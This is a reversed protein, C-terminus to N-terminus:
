GGDGSETVAIGTGTAIAYATGDPGISVWPDGARPAPVSGRGCESLPLPVQRWTKGGDQSVSAVIGRAQGGSWRDQQYVGILVNPDQPSVALSPEVESDAIMMSSPNYVPAVLTCTRFPSPGSVAITEVLDGNSTCSGALLAVAILAAKGPGGRM